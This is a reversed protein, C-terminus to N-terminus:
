LELVIFQGETEECPYSVLSVSRLIVQPKKVYAIPDFQGGAKGAGFAGGGGDM